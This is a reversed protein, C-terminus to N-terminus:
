HVSPSPTPQLTLLQNTHEVLDAMENALWSDLGDLTLGLAFHMANVKEELEDGAPLAEIADAQIELARATWVLTECLSSAAGLAKDLNANTSNRVSILTHFLYDWGNQDVIMSKALLRVAQALKKTDNEELPTKIADFIRTRREYERQAKRRTETAVREFEVFVNTM